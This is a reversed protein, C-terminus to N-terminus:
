RKYKGKFKRFFRGEFCLRYFLKMPKPAMLYLRRKISSKTIKGKFINKSVAEDLTYKRSVQKPAFSPYGLAIYAIIDYENPIKFMKRMTEQSPLRCIWCAGLNFSHAALLMNQIAAAASQIYDKYEKNATRKDYSVLIGVPSEHIFIPSGSEVFWKKLGPNDIIIFKWGQINCASPAQMGYEIIKYLLSSDVAKNKFKRISRRGYIAKELDM